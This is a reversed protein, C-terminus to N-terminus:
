FWGKAGGFAGIGTGIAGSWANASNMSGQARANAGQVMLGGVNSANQMGAQGIANASTQAQGAVGGVRDLWNQYYGGFTNQGYDNLAKMRRGSYMGGVLPAARDISRIGQDLQAQYGPTQMVQDAISQQTNVLPQGPTPVAQSQGFQGTSATEFSGDPRLGQAFDSYGMDANVGDYTGPATMMRDFGGGSGGYSQGDMMPSGTMSPGGFSQGGRIMGPIGLAAGYIDAAQQGRQYGPMQLALLQQFQQNQLDAARDTASSVTRGASKSASSSLAASGLLGGGILLAGMTGIAM